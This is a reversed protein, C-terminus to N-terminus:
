RILCAVGVGALFASAIAIYVWGEWVVPRSHTRRLESRRVLSAIRDEFERNRRKYKSM